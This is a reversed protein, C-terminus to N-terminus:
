FFRYQVGVRFQRGRLDYQSFDYLYTTSFGPDYPPLENTVNLIAGTVTLKPTVKYQARLDLTTYSPITEPYTGTQFRPDQPTFFSGPLLDQRYSHVYNVTGTVAWPGQDWNLSLSGKIRPYTNSGGNSGAFNEGEEEFKDVYAAVLRTTFRGFTTRLSHRLDVDFGRTRVDSLNRYNNLITVIACTVPDRIVRPDGGTCTLPNRSAADTNVINQFSDAGVINTWNIEYWDVSVNFDASPEYLFGLTTNRSKEAQLQPNGAFIGSAQPITGTVPDQVQVFFTAVSPSIEPLTPARFGRGWNARMLFESTPKFKLGIKPTLATGFDSYRDNRLALQAELTRTLPLALEGFMAFQHRSGDTETIGQGLIQGSKALPDPRDAISEHRYEVGLAAGIPGGPLQGLETSGKTDIFELKSTSKRPFNVLSAGCAALTTSPADLNCASATSLPVPPQPTSPVNFIASTGNLTIRRINQNEVENESYGIASDLDWNFARYKGGALLRTTDSTIENDRTGLAFLNGSFRANGALPNGAVGPAFNINYTFPRLGQPTQTLGTTGAFFPPTFTQETEIRSLGVEGYLEAGSALEMTGRGLFGVRQTGPLATLVSNIDTACWTNNPLNFGTGPAALAAAGSILGADVAQQFNLVRGGWQACESIARRQNANGTGPVGTWTGGATLSQFNRGGQEGRFDRDAGFETDSMLLEQRKYFDLVGFVNFKNTGLDGFGASVNARYDSKGEFTGIEAGAAVGKFDRRLIVNVVGAIADSGYIASAGDKLIEVREVASSPISNLDVFTDQLNQAFGYGATRRGNILVLTAKQGLGRLSIGSAGPAFSNAFSENFSGGTNGPVNRLVEAITARGTREIEERTIIQVPTVTETDARRINTGTITIRELQQQQAQQQAVAPSALTASALGGFAVLLHRATAKLELM